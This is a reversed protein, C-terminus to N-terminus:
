YDKTQCWRLEFGRDVVKSVLESVMVGGIHNMLKFIYTKIVCARHLKVIRCILICSFWPMYMICM